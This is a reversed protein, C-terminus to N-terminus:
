AAALGAEESPLTMTFTAGKGVGDSNADITANMTRATNASWHLGLGRRTGEKTSFGRDFLTSLTERSMGQGNDGISLRVGQATRGATIGIRGDDRSAAAVAEAANTILGILMQKMLFPEVIVRGVQGVNPNVQVDIGDILDGAVGDLADKVIQELETPEIRAHSRGLDEQEGLMRDLQALGDSITNLHKSAEKDRTLTNESWLNVYRLLKERREPEIENSGIEDLAQTLETKDGGGLLQRLQGARLTMPNLQNRANHLLGSAMEAMGTQFANETLRQQADRIERLMSDFEVGLTGIEDTRGSAVSHSLDGSRRITLLHETFSTLPRVVIRRLLLGLVVLVVVGAVILGILTAELTASGTASIDRPTISRLLLTPAGTVDKLVAFTSVSDETTQHLMPLEDAAMADLASQATAPLPDDGVVIIEFDVHTQEVLSEVLDPTVFRGMVLTGRSPGENQTNLIASSAYLMPGVATRMIGVDATGPEAHQLLFHSSDLGSLDFVDKPIEDGTQLDHATEWIVEGSANYFYFVSIGVDTAAETYFNSEEFETNRDVAYKYADDWSSWDSDLTAIRELEASIADEVREINREAEAIELKVFSPYVVSELVVYNLVVSLTVVGAVIALTKSRINM